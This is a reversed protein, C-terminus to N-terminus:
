RWTARQELAQFAARAHQSHYRLENSASQPTPRHAQVKGNRPSEALEVLNQGSEQSPQQAPAENEMVVGKLVQVLPAPACSQQSPYSTVPGNMNGEAFVHSTLKLPTVRAHLLDM